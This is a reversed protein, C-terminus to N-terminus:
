SWESRRKKRRPLLSLIFGFFVSALALGGGKLLWARQEHTANQENASVLKQQENAMEALRQKGAELQKQLRNQQARLAQNTDSLQATQQQEDLLQQELEPLRQRQGATDVIFKSEIWGTRQRQDLIETYDGDDSIQLITLPEGASVSGLIRFQRGAGAHLFIYLDETVYKRQEVENTASNDQDVNQSQAHVVLQLQIFFSCWLSIKVSKSIMIQFLKMM